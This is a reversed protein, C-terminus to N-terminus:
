FDGFSPAFSFFRAQRVQGPTEEEIFAAAFTSINRVFKCSTEEIDERVLSTMRSDAGVACSM